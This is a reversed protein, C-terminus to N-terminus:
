NVSCQANIPKGFTRFHLERVSDTCERKYKLKRQPSMCAMTRQSDIVDNSIDTYFARQHQNFGPKIKKGDSKHRCNSIQFFKFVNYFSCLGINLFNAISLFTRRFTSSYKSNRNIWKQFFTNFYTTYLAICDDTIFLM